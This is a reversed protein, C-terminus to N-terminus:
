FEQVDEQYLSLLSKFVFFTCGSFLLGITQIGTVKEEHNGTVM